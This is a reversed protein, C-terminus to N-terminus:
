KKIWEPLRLNKVNLENINLTNINPNTKLMKHYAKSKCMQKVKKGERM